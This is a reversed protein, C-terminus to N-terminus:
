SLVAPEEHPCRRHLGAGGKCFLHSFAWSHAHTGRVPIGLLSARDANEASARIAIGIDTYRLLAGICVLVAPVVLFVMLDNDDFVVGGIRTSVDFPPDLEGDWSPARLEARLNARAAQEWLRNGTAADYGFEGQVIDQARTGIQDNRADLISPTDPGPMLDSPPAVAALGMAMRVANHADVMGAGVVREEYPMPMATARLIEM